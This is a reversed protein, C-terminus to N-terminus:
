GMLGGDVMINTATCYRSENGLLFLIVSAIENPDALRKLPISQAFTELMKTGEGEGVLDKIWETMNTQVSGPSVANVRV